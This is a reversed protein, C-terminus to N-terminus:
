LRGLATRPPSKEPPLDGTLERPKEIDPRIERRGTVFRSSCRRTLKHLSPKARRM